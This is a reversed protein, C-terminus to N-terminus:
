GRPKMMSVLWLNIVLGTSSWVSPTQWANDPNLHVLWTEKWGAGDNDHLTPEIPIRMGDGRQDSTTMVPSTMWALKAEVVWDPNFDKKIIIGM